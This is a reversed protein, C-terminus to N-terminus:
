GITGCAVPDFNTSNIAGNASTLVASRHVNLYWGQAPIQTVGNVITTTTATGGRDAVLNKLMYVVQGQHACTGLHIHEMHVSGPVLGHVVVKITLQHKTVSLWAQGSAHQDAATTPDLIYRLVLLGHIRAYNHIAVCAIPLSQATSALGPGNQVNVIWGARPIGNTSIDTTSTGVGTADAVVPHLAFLMPGGVQCSSAQYIHAPHSSLPTLGTLHLTVALVSTNPNWSLQVTGTPQHVLVVTASTIADEGPSVSAANGGPLISPSCAAMLVALLALPFLWGHKFKHM